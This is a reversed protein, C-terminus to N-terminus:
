ITMDVPCEKVLESALTQVGAFNHADIFDDLRDRYGIKIAHYLCTAVGCAKLNSASPQVLCLRAPASLTTPSCGPHTAAGVITWLTYCSHYHALDDRGDVCGFICPLTVEEHMRASM